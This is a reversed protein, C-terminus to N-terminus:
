QLIGSRLGGRERSKILRIIEGFPKDYLQQKFDDDFYVFTTIPYVEDGVRVLKQHVISHLVQIVRNASLGTIDTIRAITDECSNSHLTSLVRKGTNAIRMVATGTEDKTETIYVYDPNQHILSEINSTYERITECEIQEVGSIRQEVPMEISVVKSGGEEVVEKLVALATTNKGSMTEGVIFRLGNEKNREVNRFHEIVEENVNLDELTQEFMANPYLRITIVHGYYNKNIVVRARYEEDIEYGVYKAENVSPDMPTKITLVKLIEDMIYEPFINNSMTKRKKYNYYVIVQKEVNSITLDPVKKRIAEELVMNLAQKGSISSLEKFEGYLRTYNLIFYHLTTPVYEVNFNPVTPRNVEYEPIYLVRITKKSSLYQIPVANSDKFSDIVTKPIFSQKPESLVTDPYETNCLELLDERSLYSQEYMILSEPTRFKSSDKFRTQVMSQISRISQVELLGSLNLM